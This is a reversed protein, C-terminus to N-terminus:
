CNNDRPWFLGRVADVSSVALPKIRERYDAIAHDLVRVLGTEDAEARARALVETLVRGLYEHRCEDEDAMRNYACLCGGGLEGGSGQLRVTRAGDRTTVTFLFGDLHLTEHM